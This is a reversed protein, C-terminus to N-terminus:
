FFISLYSTLINYPFSIADITFMVSDVGYDDYMGDPDIVRYFFGSLVWPTSIYVKLADNADGVPSLYEELFEDSIKDTKGVEDVIIISATEGLVKSTPPYSTIQSGLSSNLLLPTDETDANSAKFTIQETNNAGKEDILRTYFEEYGWKEKMYADGLRMMRRIRSILQRSQKDSASVALVQTNKGTGMPAKNFVCVWMGFIAVVGETKGIQRSTIAAFERVIENKQLSDQLRKLFDIQWAYLSFGLMYKSFLVVNESCAELLGKGEPKEEYKKMKKIFDEDVITEKIM